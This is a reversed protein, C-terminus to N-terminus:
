NIRRVRMTSGGDLEAIYNGLAGRKIKVKKSKLDRIRVKETDIQAWQVGDELRLLLKGDRGKTISAFYAVFDNLQVEETGNDGGHFIGHR